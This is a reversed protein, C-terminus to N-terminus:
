QYILQAECFNCNNMLYLFSNEFEHMPRTEYMYYILLQGWLKRELPYYIVSNKYISELLCKTAAHTVGIWLVFDFFLFYAQTYSKDYTQKKISM